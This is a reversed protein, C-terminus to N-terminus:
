AGDLLYRLHGILPFNRLLAHRRQFLDYVAIALLVTAAGVLFWGFSSM